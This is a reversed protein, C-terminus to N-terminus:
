VDINCSLNVKEKDPRSMRVKRSEENLVIDNQLDFIRKEITGKLRTAKKIEENLSVIAERLWFAVIRTQRSHEHAEDNSLEAFTERMIPPPDTARHQKLAENCARIATQSLEVERLTSNRWASPGVTSLGAKVGNIQM